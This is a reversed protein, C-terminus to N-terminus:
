YLQVHTPENFTWMYQSLTCPNLTLAKTTQQKSSHKRARTLSVISVITPM